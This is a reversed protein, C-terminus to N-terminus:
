SAVSWTPRKRSPYSIPSEPFYGAAPASPAVQVELASPQQEDSEARAAFSAILTSRMAARCKDQTARLSNASNVLRTSLDTYFGDSNWEAAADEQKRMM